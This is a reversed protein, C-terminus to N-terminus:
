QRASCRSDGLKIKSLTALDLMVHDDIAPTLYNNNIESYEPCNSESAETASTTWYTVQGDKIGVPGLYSDDFVKTETLLDYVTLGRPAPGTGSDVLLHNGELAFLYDPGESEIVFDGADVSYECPFIQESSGKQKVVINAYGGSVSNQIVFYKNNSVCNFKYAKNKLICVKPANFSLTRDVGGNRICWDYADEKVMGGDSVIDTVPVEVSVEKIVVKEVEVVKEPAYAYGVWGGIFPMAIFLLLTLYKSLSTVETFHKKLRNESEIDEPKM